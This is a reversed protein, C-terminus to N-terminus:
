IYTTGLDTCPIQFEAGVVAGRSYLLVAPISQFLKNEPLFLPPKTNARPLGWRQHTTKAVFSLRQRGSSPGAPCGEPVQAPGQCALTSAPLRPLPVLGPCLLAQLSCPKCNLEEHLGPPPHPIEPCLGQGALANTAGLQTQKPLHYLFKRAKFFFPTKHRVEQLM